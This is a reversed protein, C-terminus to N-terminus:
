ILEHENLDGAREFKTSKRINRISAIGFTDGEIQSIKQM